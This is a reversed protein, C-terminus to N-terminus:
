DELFILAFVKCDGLYNPILAYEDPMHAMDELKAWVAAGYGAKRIIAACTGGGIGMPKAKVGYISEVARAILSVVPHNAPTPPAAKEMQTTSIEIRVGQEEEIRDAASRIFDLVELPDYQPMIRCDLYSIDEGPISNVNPVNKERKTPQFTSHPPDFLGSRAGYSGHLDDYLGVLLKMAALNANRGRDPTSAHVQKGLTRIRVWMISKEAVEIMSGDPEGADPVIFLDDRSFLEPHENMLFVIGKESGVEEDAVLFLNVDREPRLSLDMLAKIAFLSAFLDQGNDEAGRAYLRDGEVRPKFPEVTWGSLDGPPVVDTHTFIWLPEKSRDKGHYRLLLNPRQGGEATDDPSNYWEISDFGWGEVEEAIRKVKEMEGKGGSRPAIAPISLVEMAFSIMEERNGDIRDLVDKM